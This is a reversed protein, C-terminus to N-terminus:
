RDGIVTRSGDYEQLHETAWEPIPQGVKRATTVSHAEWATQLRSASANAANFRVTANWNQMEIWTRYQFYTTSGGFLTFMFLVYLILWKDSM